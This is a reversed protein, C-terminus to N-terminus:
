IDHFFLHFLNFFLHNQVDKSLNQVDHEENKKMKRGEKPDSWACVEVYAVLPGGKIRAILAVSEDQKIPRRLSQFQLTVDLRM